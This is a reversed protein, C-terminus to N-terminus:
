AAVVQGGAGHRAEGGRLDDRVSAGRDRYNLRRCSVRRRGLARWDTDTEYSRLTRSASAALVPSECIMVTM